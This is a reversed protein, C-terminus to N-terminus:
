GDKGTQREDGYRSRRYDDGTWPEPPAGCSVHRACQRPNFRTPCSRRRVQRGPSNPRGCLRRGFRAVPPCCHVRAPHSFRELAVQPFETSATPHGPRVDHIMRPRGPHPRPPAGRGSRRLPSRRWGQHPASRSGSAPTAALRHKARDMRQPCRRRRWCGRKLLRRPAPGAWGGTLWGSAVMEQHPSRPPATERGRM